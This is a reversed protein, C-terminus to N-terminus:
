THNMLTIYIGKYNKEFDELDETTVKRFLLRWYATWDRDQPIVDDEDDVEGLPRSLQLNNHAADYSFSDKPNGVLDSM